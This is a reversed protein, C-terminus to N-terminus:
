EKIKYNINNMKTFCDIIDMFHNLGNENDGNIVVWHLLDHKLNKAYNTFQTNEKIQRKFFGFWSGGRSIYRRKRIKKPADVYIEIFMYDDGCREKLYEVGNPDIVYIDCRDLEDKTTWYKYGNIETYAVINDKTNINNEKSDVFYHDGNEEEGPRPPRTTFSKVVKMGLKEAAKHALYTKGSATRGIVLFKIDSM